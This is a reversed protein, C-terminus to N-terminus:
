NMPATVNTAKPKKGRTPITETSPASIPTNVVPHTLTKVIAVSLGKTRAKIEPQYMAETSIAPFYYEGTFAANFRVKITKEEGADLALYSLVRDDRVDQFTLGTTKDAETSSGIEVGSPLLTSLAINKIAQTANNKVKVELTYDQGQLLELASNTDVEDSQWIRAKNKDVLSAQLSLGNAVAEENGRAAIGQLTVNAYLKQQGKNQLAFAFPQDSTSLAQSAFAVNSNLDTAAAQGVSVQASIPKDSSSLYHAAALLAWATDQTNLTKDEGLADALQQVVLEADQKRGLALLTELQLGLKGPITSFTLESNPSSVQTAVLGEVTQKAAEAQGALQYAAALLWRAQSNIKNAERLRNMAGLQPKGGVALVYLRYAQVHSTDETSSGATWDNAQKIQYNQWGTLLGLPVNYGQKQAEILFHGAYLSAWDNADSSGPWYMLNGNAAQFQELKKIAAKIYTETKKQKDADLKLLKPLYLQPFVASTTQELCGHPYHILYDLLQQLHLAPLASLEVTTQNSGVIGFPRITTQWSEGAALPKSVTRASAVNPAQIAINVEHSSQLNGSTATFRLKGMMPKDGATVQVSAYQEGQKVATLTVGEGAKAFAADPEVTIKVDKIQDSSVFVTLPISITEGIKLTRPLSSMLMLPKRVFVSQEASGYSQGSAAVVMIRVAGLYSPIDVQHQQTQGADVHFAGLFRVVPPFRKPKNAADDIQVEDGGGLALMQELKGSYGGIVSDFLDWTKVGLAEKRYFAKYLNPTDFRTLGLLGEDVVAVTYDMAKGSQESVSFSQTTEPEWETATKMVPQIKNASNEVILPVIGYLRLPRDNQKGQHPQLLTVSAYANPAMAETIPISVQLRKGDLELWRQELIRSSTEISLLARGAQVEPLQLQATDGVQYSPKDSSLRLMSAASSGEEQARGAWGPWDIYVSKASCHQGQLDCVRILYRGWDPSHIQFKWSAHGNTTSITSQQLKTTTSADAFEALSEPTKDWWWRWDIKYLTVEVQPLSVDNGQADVSAIDVTQDQDTLLMGGRDTDGVPLKIGVFNAFPYYNMEQKNISFAGGEEFVRTTFWASLLGPAPQEPQFGKTFQLKGQADLRGELIQQDESDLKRTPDDFTFDAYRKFETTKERLKVSVDAKLNAAIGGHLWEASLTAEPLPQYGYLAQAGAYTLDLKLRNPRITEIKLMKSFSSGGLQAKVQWDGTPDNEETKLTFVYFPGVAPKGVLTQKLKGNPDFLQVTVPHDAPLTQNRDQLAFVLHIDDGPRWVGREGYLYGKIGKQVADGGVEFASTELATNGNLKLYGTDNGLSAKLLFPTSPTTLTAFGQSDTKGTVLTQAQFNRLTLEVGSAPQASRLDTAIIHVDGNTGQKAILGINSAMINRQAKVMDSNQFYGDHCPNDRQEWAEDANEEEAYYDAIGDWGSAETMDQDEHNELPKDSAKTPPTGPPCSYTSFRRDVSLELRYLTGLKTKLLSAADISYHNWQNPNAANLPITKRWLYRGVRELEYDGNLSNVQLFQEVNEPFIEFATVQVANVARAELPIEMTQGDPMISGRGTFRIAPKPPTLEITQELKETLKGLEAQEAQIGPNIILRQEGAGLKESPYVLLTNGMIQTKIEDNGLQVLGTLDQASALADSFTIVIHSKDASDTETTIRTINFTKQSPIKFTTQGSANASPATLAKADWSLILDTAFTERPATVIFHHEMGAENHTWRVTLPKNQVSANLIKELADSAVYDSSFVTGQLQMQTAQGMVPTLGQPKVEIAMRPTKFNLALDVTNEPIGLLGKPKLTLTYNQGSALPADPVFVLSNTTEFRAKGNVSPNLTIYASADSGVKDDKVVPQRFTLTIPTNRGIVSGPWQSLVEAIARNPSTTTASREANASPKTTTNTATKDGCASVLLSLCFLIAIALWHQIVIRTKM